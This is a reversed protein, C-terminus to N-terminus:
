PVVVWADPFGEARMRQMVRGASARDPLPGVRLKYLLHGAEAKVKVVEQHSRPFGLRALKKRARRIEGPRRAALVQVWFRPAAKAVAARRKRARRVKHVPTATPVPAVTPAPPHVPTKTPPVPVITPTATPMVSVAPAPTPSPILEEPVSAPSVAPQGGGASAVPPGARTSWAAGYGLVFAVILLVAIVVVLVMLQRSTLEIQYYTRAM